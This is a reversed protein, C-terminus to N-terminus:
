GSRARTSGNRSALRSFEPSHAAHSRVGKSETSRVLRMVLTTENGGSDVLRHSFGDVMRKAIYLGLGGLPRQDLPLSLDPDSAAIPDFAPADDRVQVIFDQSNKRIEIEISGPKGRYGHLIANTVVENVAWSIAYVGDSALGAQAAHQEVQKRIPALQDLAALYRRNSVIHIMNM